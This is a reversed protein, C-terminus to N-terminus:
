SHSITDHFFLCTFYFVDLKGENIFHFYFLGNSGSTWYPFSRFHKISHSELGKDSIFRSPCHACKKKGKRSTEYKLVHESLNEEGVVVYRCFKCYVKIHRRALHKQLQEYSSTTEFCLSCRFLLTPSFQNIVYFHKFYSKLSPRSCSLTRFSTWSHPYMQRNDLFNPTYQYHSHIHTILEFGKKFRQFCASCIWPFTDEYTKLRPQIHPFFTRFIAKHALSIYYLPSPIFTSWSWLTIVM